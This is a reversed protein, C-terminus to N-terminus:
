DNKSLFCYHVVRYEEKYTLVCISIFLDKDDYIGIKIPKSPGGRFASYFNYFTLTMETGNGNFNIRGTPVDSKTDFVFNVTLSNDIVINAKGNEGYIHLTGSYLVEMDGTNEVVTMGNWNGM